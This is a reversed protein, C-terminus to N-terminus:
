SAVPIVIPRTVQRSLPFSLSTLNSGIVNRRPTHWPYPDRKVFLLIDTVFAVTVWIILIDSGRHVM